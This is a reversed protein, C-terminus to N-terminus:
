ENAANFESALLYLHAASWSFNPAGQQEGTFPHYNERIPAQALLGDAHKFLKGILKNADQEYGYHRLGVVAFYFQDLWVRGRWYINPGFAPSSLAATPFPVPTNFEQESLMVKRVQAAQEASAVQNFLPSWGEPGKGRATLPRGACGNALPTAAIEIDYYFGSSKDFMCRNIYDSLKQAAHKFHAADAQNGLIEAMAALLRNDSVMYSAQDVSEQLLSYGVLVGDQNRNEGFNVQWDSAKGGQKLYKQLQEASIFGFTAADDRGSEWSAATQAPIELQQQLALHQQYQKLGTAAVTNGHSDQYAFILEGTNTNHAKDLTAGYEVVGNRNHDRNSLWWKRYAVLKPYMASLWNKDQNAQYVAMVAWAALSPKSNRESWNGGDGGREPSLNYALLDPLMGADQPRIPDNPQIQGAFVAEINAKAIDPAFQSMAYAQKWSDWPWTLNGSFWRATVSPTVTDYAVAGAQARWNSILTEISKVAIRQQSAPMADLRQLYGQWRKASAAFYTDPRALMAQQMPAYTQQETQNHVYSYLTYFQAAGSIAATQTYNAGQIQTTTALTKRVQYRSTGSTLLQWPSRVQGMVIDLGKPVAQWALQLTPFAKALSTQQDWQQQLEGDFRLELPTDTFVETKLLSSRPSVFRLSLEVRVGEATLSQRLLGPESWVKGTVPVHVGARWVQLRDIRKSLYLLYEETVVAAGPFGGLEADSTPLLHGHWAGNDFLPNYPSHGYKDAPRAVSPEGRRDIVNHWQALAPLSLLFCCILLLAHRM